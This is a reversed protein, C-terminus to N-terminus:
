RQSHRHHLTSKLETNPLQGITLAVHEGQDTVHRPTQADEILNSEVWIFACADYEDVFDVQM